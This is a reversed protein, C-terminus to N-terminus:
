LLLMGAEATGLGQLTINEIIKYPTYQGARLTSLVHWGQYNTISSSALPLALYNGSSSLMFLQAHCENLEQLSCKQTIERKGARHTINM